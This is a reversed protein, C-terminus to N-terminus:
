HWTKFKKMASELQKALSQIRGKQVIGKGEEKAKKLIAPTL